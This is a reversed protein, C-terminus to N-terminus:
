DTVQEWGLFFSTYFRNHTLQQSWIKNFSDRFINYLSGKALKIINKWSLNLLIRNCCDVFTLNKKDWLQIWCILNSFLPGFCVWKAMNQFKQRPHHWSTFMHVTRYIVDHFTIECQTLSLFIWLPMICQFCLNTHSSISTVLIKEM